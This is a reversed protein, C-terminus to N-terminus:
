QWHRIGTWNPEIRGSPVAQNLAFRLHSFLTNITYHNRRGEEETKIKKRFEEQERSDKKRSVKEKSEPRRCNQLFEDLLFCLM